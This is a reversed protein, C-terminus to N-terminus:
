SLAAQALRAGAAPRESRRRPPTPSPPAMYAALPRRRARAVCWAAQALRPGAEAWREASRLSSASAHAVAAGHLRGVVPLVADISPAGPGAPHAPFELRRVVQYGSDPPANNHDPFNCMPRERTAGARHRWRPHVPRRLSSASPGPRGCLHPNPPREPRGLRPRPSSANACPPGLRVSTEARRMTACGSFVNAIERFNSCPQARCHRGLTCAACLTRVWAPNHCSRGCSRGRKTRAPSRQM